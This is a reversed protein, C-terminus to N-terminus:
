PAVTFEIISLFDEACCTRVRKGAPLWFPFQNSATASGAGYDGWDFYYNGDVFFTSQNAENSCVAINISTTATVRSQLFSCVKWVTGPPVTDEVTSITM